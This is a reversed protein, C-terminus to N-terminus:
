NLAEVYKKFNNLIAQWGARQLEISNQQEIDFIETVTTIGNQFGFSIQVNRGDELVYDILEYLNISTYEGVFDFQMSGDKAAMRSLFKGGVVLDNEALPTHWDDSANNWHVIHKPDTWCNWAKEVLANISVEVNIKQNEIAM